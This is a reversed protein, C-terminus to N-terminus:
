GHEKVKGLPLHSLSAPQRDAIRIQTVESEAPDDPTSVGEFGGDEPEAVMVMVM